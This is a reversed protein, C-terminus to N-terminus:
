EGRTVRVEGPVVRVHDRRDVPSPLDWEVVQLALVLRLKGEDAAAWVHDGVELAAPDDLHHPVRVPAALRPGVVLDLEDLVAVLVGDLPRQGETLDIEDMTDIAPQLLSAGLDKDFDDVLIVKAMLERQTTLARSEEVSLIGAALARDALVEIGAWAAAAGPTAGEPASHRYNLM